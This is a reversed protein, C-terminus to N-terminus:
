IVTGKSEALEKQLLEFLGDPFVVKNTLSNVDIWKANTIKKGETMVFTEQEYLSPDKFEVTYLLTIEHGISEGVKYINELIGLGKKVNVEVQLEEAFERVLADESREGLEITGGIPRYYTGYGKSHSAKNVELLVKGDKMMIGLTNARPRM